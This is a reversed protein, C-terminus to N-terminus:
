CVVSCDELMLPLYPINNGEDQGERDEGMTLERDLSSFSIEGDLEVPLKVLCRSQREIGSLTGNRKASLMADCVATREFKKVQKCICKLKKDLELEASQMNKSTGSLLIGNDTFFM